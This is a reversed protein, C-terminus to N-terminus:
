AAHGYQANDHGIHAYDLPVRSRIFRKGARIAGIRRQLAKGAATPDTVYDIRAALEESGSALRKVLAVLEEKTAAALRSGLREVAPNAPSLRSAPEVDRVDTRRPSM